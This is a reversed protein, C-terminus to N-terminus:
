FIRPGFSGHCRRAIRARPPNIPTLVLDGSLKVAILADTASGWSPRRCPRSMNRRRAIKTAKPTSASMLEYSANSSETSSSRNNCDAYNSTEATAIFRRSKIVRSSPAPPHGNWARANSGHHRRSGAGERIGEAVRSHSALVMACGRNNTQTSASRPLARNYLPLSAILVHPFSV